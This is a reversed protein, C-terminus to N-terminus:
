PKFLITCSEGLGWILSHLDLPRLSNSVNKIQWQPPSRRQITDECEECDLRNATPGHIETGYIFSDWTKEATTTWCSAWWRTPGPLVGRWEYELWLRDSTVPSTMGPTSKSYTSISTRTFNSSELNRRLLNIGSNASRAWKICKQSTNSQIKCGVSVHRRTPCTQSAWLRRYTLLIGHDENFGNELFEVHLWRFHCKACTKKAIVKSQFCSTLDHGARSSLLPINTSRYIKTIRSWVLGNKLYVHRERQSLRRGM